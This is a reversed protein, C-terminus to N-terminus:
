YLGSVEINLKTWHTLPISAGDSTFMMLQRTGLRSVLYLTLSMSEVLKPYVINVNSGQDAM